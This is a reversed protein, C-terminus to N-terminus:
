PTVLILNTCTKKKLKKIFNMNPIVIFKSMEALSVRDDIM